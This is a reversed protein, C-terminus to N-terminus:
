LWFKRCNLQLAFDKPGYPKYHDKIANCVVDNFGSHQAYYFGMTGQLSPFERVLQTVLDNKCINISIDLNM